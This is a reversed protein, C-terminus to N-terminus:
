KPKNSQNKLYKQVKEKASIIPLTGIGKQRIVFNLLGVEAGFQSCQAWDNGTWFEDGIQKIYHPGLLIFGTPIFTPMDRTLNNM